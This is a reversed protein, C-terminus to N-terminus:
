TSSGSLQLSSGPVVIQHAAIEHLTQGASPLHWRIITGGDPNPEAVITGGHAEVIGRVIALGMGTGEKRTTFFPEFVRERHNPDIGCGTDIVRIEVADESEAHTQILLRRRFEPTSEFAAFANQVLNALVQQIQIPDVSVVPLSAGLKLRFEIGRKRAEASYLQEIDQVLDNIEARVIDQPQLRSFSRARRVIEGGRLAAQLIRQLPERLTPIVAPNTTAEGGLMALCGEAYNAIAGLPQNIEHAMGAALEGMSKLRDAHSLQVALERSRQEAQRRATIDTVVLLFGHREGTPDHLSQPSAITEVFHGDRHRLTIETSLDVEGTRRCLEDYRNRNGDAIYLAAPTGALQNASYGVMACFRRNAFQVRGQTDHVVLGDSMSEVLRQYQAESQEFERGVGQIAPRVVAFQVVLLVGLITLMVVFEVAKLQAIHGRAETEYHGVLAHMRRLFPDEHELIRRVAAARIEATEPFTPDSERAALLDEVATVISRFHPELEAFAADTQPTNRGPLRLEANGHQLGEHAQSWEQLVGRLETRRAAQVQPDSTAELALAAKTLKQSLMRQRGAVNIVPADSTLHSLAPQLLVQDFVVLAAILALACWARRNLSVAPNEHSIGQTTFPSPLVPPVSDSM